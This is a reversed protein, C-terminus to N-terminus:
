EAKIGAEKMLKQYKALQDRTASALQEPTSGQLTFGQQTLKERV